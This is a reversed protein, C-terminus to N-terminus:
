FKPESNRHVTFHIAVSVGYAADNAGMVLFSWFTAFSRYANIRPSNWKELATFDEPPNPSLSDIGSRESHPMAELAIQYADHSQEQVVCTSTM